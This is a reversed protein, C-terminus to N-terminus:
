SPTKAPKQRRHKRWEYAIPLLTLVVIVYIAKDINDGLTPFASGLFYGLLTIALVWLTAGVFSWVFFRRRDM